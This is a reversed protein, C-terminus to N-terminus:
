RCLIEFRAKAGSTEFVVLFARRASDADSSDRPRAREGDVALHVCRVAGVHQRLPQQSEKGRHQVGTWLVREDDAEAAAHRGVRDECRAFNAMEVDDLNRGLHDFCRRVEDAFIVVDQALRGHAQEDAVAPRVQSQRRALVIDNDRLWGVWPHGADGREERALEERGRARPQLRAADEALPRVGVFDGIGIQLRNHGGERRDERVARHPQDALAVQEQNAGDCRADLLAQGSDGSSCTHARNGRQERVDSVQSRRAM